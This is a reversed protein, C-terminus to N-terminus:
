QVELLFLNQMFFLLFYCIGGAVLPTAVWGLGIKILINYQINKIGRAIGIGVVSGVVAQSSSIPVLPLAPLGRQVLWDHLGESAFLFLVIASSLVVIFATIPSLKFIDSGVTEMVRKSYTFIGVSISLAGLLFLLQVGSLAWGGIIHVDPFPSIPVFVGMVNGINNAGLSYAGFAGSIILAIRTFLDRWLVHLRIHHIICRVFYFLMFGFLAAIIPSSIWSMIIKSLVTFNVQESAYINWGLIGGVIAQSTSVPLSARTMFFVSLAAALTVTFAGPLATIAGLRGLTGAAGSGAYVAGAIVAISAVIAALSFRVMRTAVATGFVNAADNAGLSWGLFLGGSLFIILSGM